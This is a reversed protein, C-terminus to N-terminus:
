IDEEVDAGDREYKLHKIGTARLAAHIESVIFKNLNGHAGMLYVTDDTLYLVTIICTYPTRQEYSGGNEYVRIHAVVPTIEIM